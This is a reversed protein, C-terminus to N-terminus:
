INRVGNKKPLNEINCWLMAKDKIKSIKNIKIKFCIKFPSNLILDEQKSNGIKINKVVDTNEKNQVNFKKAVLFSIKL